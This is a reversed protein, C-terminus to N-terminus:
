RRQRRHVVIPAQAQAQAKAPSVQALDATSQLVGDLQSHKLLKNIAMM